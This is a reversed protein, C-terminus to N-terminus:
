RENKYNTIPGGPEPFLVKQLPTWCNKFAVLLLLMTRTFRSGALSLTGNSQSKSM